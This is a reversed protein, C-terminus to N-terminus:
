IKYKKLRIDERPVGIDKGIINYYINVEGYLHKMRKLINEFYEVTTPKNNKKNYEADNDSFINLTINDGIIGMNVLKTLVSVYHKGCVAINMTNPKSYGLNLYASTIDLIGESLNITLKDETFIDIESQISYFVQSGKSEQTIPYKIWKYEEKDTIDRFLIYSSGYSLFGVYHDEIASAWRPDFTIKKIDNLILFERLSTVVKMKSLDELSISTGMRRCIYDTKKNYKVEPLEYDFMIIKDNGLFKYAQKNDAYKNMTTISSQLNIDDIGMVNLFEKNVVGSETCKFCNYVMPYNDDLNIHIYLHGTNLSKQSDGCFPCRTRYETDNVQKIYEGRSFLANIMDQKVEVSTM